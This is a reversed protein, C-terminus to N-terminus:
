SLGGLIGAKRKGLRECSYGHSLAEGIWAPNALYWHVTKRLGSDLIERPGWLCERRVRSAELAYRYDHGPRDEVCEIRDSHSRGGAPPRLEDLIRCIERAVGMNTCEGAAGVVYSNGPRGRELVALIARCFDEVYIWDRVNSGDGYIPLSKGELARVILLPILKEPFQFPGYNNCGHIIMSSFGFTESWARVFHDASAKSASYPSRPMYPSTENFLGKEGLSGFVEDTSIHIFRFGRQLGPSASLLYSRMAELLHFTGIVNTEIFPTPDDISRDVHTEAALNIVAEPGHEGMLAALLERDAIDGEIFDCFSPLGLLKRTARAGGTCLKDLLIVSFGSRALLRVLNFGIFGLGGTVLVPTRSPM